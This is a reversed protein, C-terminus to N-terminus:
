TGVKSTCTNGREKLGARVSLQPELFLKIAARIRAALFPSDQGLFERPWDNLTFVFARYFSALILVQMTFFNTSQITVIFYESENVCRTCAHPGNQLLQSFTKCFM